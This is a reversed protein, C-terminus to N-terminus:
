SQFTMFSDDFNEGPGSHSGQFTHNHAHTHTHTHKKTVVADIGKTRQIHCSSSSGWVPRGTQCVIGTRAESSGQVGYVVKNRRMRAMNEKM